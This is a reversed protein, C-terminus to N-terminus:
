RFIWDIEMFGTARMFCPVFFWQISKNFKDRLVFTDRQFSDTYNQIVINMKLDNFDSKISLGQIDTTIHFQKGQINLTDWNGNTAKAQIIKSKTTNGREQDYYHLTLNRLKFLVFDLEVVIFYIYKSKDVNLDIFWKKM